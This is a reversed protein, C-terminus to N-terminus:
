SASADDRYGASLVWGTLDEVWADQDRLLTFTHDAEPRHDVTLLPHEASSPFARRFQSAHNYVDSWSATYVFRLTVCRDLLQELRHAFTERPPFEFLRRRGFSAEDGDRGPSDLGLRDRLWRGAPNRGALLNAWSESRALRPLYRRVYFGPTRYAYGDVMYAGVVRDDARAVEFASLAGSCIGALLFRRSESARELSAMAERADELVADGWALRGSGAGSDGVGSPDFRMSPVGEAALRRAARVYIRHPGVRHIAGANLFLVAPGPRGREADPLATVGSLAGSPGFRAVREVFGDGSM